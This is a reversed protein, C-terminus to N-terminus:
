SEKFSLTESVPETEKMLHCSLTIFGVGYGVTQPRSQTPDCRLVSGLNTVHHLFCGNESVNLLPCHFTDLINAL